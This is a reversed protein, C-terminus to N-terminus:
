IKTKIRRKDVQLDLQLKRNKFFKLGCKIKHMYLKHMLNLLASMGLSKDQRAEAAGITLPIILLGVTM